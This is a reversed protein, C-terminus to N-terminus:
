LVRKPCGMKSKGSSKNGFLKFSATFMTLYYWDKFKQGGRIDNLPFVNGLKAENARFALEFSKPGRNSILINSDIFTTSVDDLYDTFLKRYGIEIGVLINENLPFKVGVGFPIAFQTLKYPKRDEYFGQGETSLPQLFFKTGASDFTYPNFHYGAIGGFIYPSISNENISRLYYEFAFQAEAISSTFNLNRVKTQPNLKDDGSVKSITFATRIFIKESIDYSLGIGFAPKSQKFTYRKSQLDGYYNAVGLYTNVYVNQNFAKFSIVWLLSLCLISKM